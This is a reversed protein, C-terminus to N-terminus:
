SNKSTSADVPRITAVDDEDYAEQRTDANNVSHSEAEKLARREANSRYSSSSDYNPVIVKKSLNEKHEEKVDLLPDDEDSYSRKLVVLSWIILALSILVLSGLVTYAIIKPNNLKGKLFHSWDDTLHIELSVWLIPFVGEPIDDMQLVGRVRSMQVNVQFRIQVDLSIGTVPDVDLHSDHHTENPELGDIDKRYIPDAMYFHPFSLLVPAGFQCKRVDLVGSPREEIDFCANPPYETGNAFIDKTPKFRKTLVGFHHEDGTYNFTLTRCFISQFFAYNDPEDPQPPGTEISTGNISNCADGNWFNLKENGNWNNIINTLSPDDEGTFVTFLGDDTANKGYLWSFKGNKYPIDPIVLPALKIIPDEYGEYVLQRVSKQTVVTEKELGLFVSAAIRFAINYDKLLNAAIIMPGNLTNITDDQSGVSLSPVFQYTRTETYSVTYNSHWEPYKKVWRSSYTYPGVETVNLPAGHKLFDEANTVNFFYLKEYIPLPIDEWIGTLLSGDTLSIDKKLQTKYISPFIMLLAVSVVLFVISVWLVIKATKRSMCPAAM